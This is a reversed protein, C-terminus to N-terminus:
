LRQKEWLEYFRGQKVTLETFNGSEILEGDEIVIIKDMEKITTLRHAIVVATVNQFFKHLSDQIKEESELDLHSTAEDLLLLQPNKFIARAIGLRQKEGGSLRVGKEGIPTDAGEPLKTLFDNIHAIELAKALESDKNKTNPSALYINERLSFNFVETEQLVVAVHNFYDQKSIRQIPVEDILIEGEFNEYEKLLLKFLTSKGAGSLGVVGIREGRNIDFSVKKLVQKEGYAFSVNKLRITRWDPPFSKKNSEDDIQVPQDLIENLRSISYRAVLIDESASTFNSISEWIRNFYNNFLVLLGIEMHGQLIGHVIFLIIGGKFIFGIIESGSNRTNVWFVKEQGRAFYNAFYTRLRNSLASVMSMIKVTRINNVAEFQLGSIKESAVNVHHSAIAVRKLLLRTTIFYIVLFIISGLAVLKNFKYIIFVTGIINVAIVTLSNVWLKILRNLGQSANTIRKLKNGTNENEHWAIDLKFMHKVAKQEADISVLDSVTFVKIRAFYQLIEAALCAVIWLVALVWIQNENGKIGNSSVISVIQAFAYTPYLWIINSILKIVTGLIFDGKYPRIYGCIDKVLQWNSYNIIKQDPALFRRM